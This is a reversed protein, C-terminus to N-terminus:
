RRYRKYSDKTRYSGSVLSLDDPKTAVKAQQAM